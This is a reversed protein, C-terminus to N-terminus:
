PESPSNELKCGIALIFVQLDKNLNTVVVKVKECADPPIYPGYDLRIYKGWVLKNLPSGSRRDEFFTIGDPAWFYQLRFRVVWKPQQWSINVGV